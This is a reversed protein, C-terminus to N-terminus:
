LQLLTIIKHSVNTDFKTEWEGKFIALIEPSITTGHSEIEQKQLPVLYDRSVSKCQLCRSSISLSRANVPYSTHEAKRAPARGSCFNIRDSCPADSASKFFLFNSYAACGGKPSCRWHSHIELVPDHSNRSFFFCLGSEEQEHTSPESSSFKAFVEEKPM